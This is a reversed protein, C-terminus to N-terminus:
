LVDVGGLADVLELVKEVGTNGAGVAVVQGGLRDLELDLLDDGGLARLVGVRILLDHLEQPVLVDLDGAAGDGLVALLQADEGAALATLDESRARFGSLTGFRRRESRGAFGAQARSALTLRPM